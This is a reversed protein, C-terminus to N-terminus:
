RTASGSGGRGADMGCLSLGTMAAGGVAGMGLAGIALGAGELDVQGPILGIAAYASGLGLGWVAGVRAAVAKVRERAVPREAQRVAWAWAGILGAAVAVLLLGALGGTALWVAGVGAALALAQMGVVAAAPRWTHM